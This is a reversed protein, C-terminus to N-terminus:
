PLEPPLAPQSRPLYLKHINEGPAHTEAPLNQGGPANQGYRSVTKTTVVPLPHKQCGACYLVVQIIWFQESNDPESHWPYWPQCQLPEAVFVVLRQTDGNLSGVRLFPDSPGAQPIAWGKFWHVIDWVGMSQLGNPINNVLGPFLPDPSSQCSGSGEWFVHRVPKTSLRGHVESHSLDLGAM